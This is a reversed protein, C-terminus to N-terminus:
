NDTLDFGKVLKLNRKIYNLNKLNDDDLEGLNNKLIDEVLVAAESFLDYSFYCGLITLKYNLNLFNNISSKRILVLDCEKPVNNTKLMSKLKPYIFDIVDLKVIEFGLKEFYHIVEILKGSGINLPDASLTTEMEICCLKDQIYEKGLSKIIEFETGQTDLKVVLPLKNNTNEYIIEKASRTEIESSVIPLLNEFSIRHKLNQNFDFKLNSSGSDIKTLYFPKKKGDNSLAYPIKTVRAKYPWNDDIYNLNKENPDVAYWNTNESNLFIDFNKHPFYSAGVDFVNIEPLISALRKKLYFRNFSSLSSFNILHKLRNKIKKLIINM